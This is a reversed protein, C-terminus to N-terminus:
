YTSVAPIFISPMPGKHNARARSMKEIMYAMNRVIKGTSPVFRVADPTAMAPTSYTSSAIMAAPANKMRSNKGIPEIRRVKGRIKYM